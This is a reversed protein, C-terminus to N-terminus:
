VINQVQERIKELAGKIEVGIHSIAMDASKVTMTNVERFLEQLLFDLRRGVPGSESMVSRFQGLHSKARVIEETIDLRDALIALEQALRAEDVPIDKLVSQVREYLAKKAEQAHLHSRGQIEKIWEDIQALRAAMDRELAEGEKLAMSVAEQLLREMGPALAEWTKDLDEEGEKATIVGPFVALLSFLDLAGGLGLKEKLTSAADLYSRALEIDAEFRPHEVGVASIQITIDVRGRHLREQVLRRIREELPSLHRPARICVECYKSNVSKLEITSSFWEGSVETRAFATMSKLM